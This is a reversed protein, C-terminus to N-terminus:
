YINSFLWRTKFSKSIGSWEQKNMKVLYILIPNVAFLKIQWLMSRVAPAMLMLSPKTVAIVAM